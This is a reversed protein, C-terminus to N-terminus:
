DISCNRYNNINTSQIFNNKPLKANEQYLQTQLFLIIAALLLESHQTLIHWTEVFPLHVELERLIAEQRWDCQSIRIIRMLQLVFLFCSWQTKHSM